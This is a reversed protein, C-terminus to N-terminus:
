KELHRERFFSSIKDNEVAQRMCVLSAYQVCQFAYEEHFDIVEASLMGDGTKKILDVWYDQNKCVWNTDIGHLLQFTGNDFSTKSCKFCSVMIISELTKILSPCCNLDQTM